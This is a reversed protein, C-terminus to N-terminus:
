THYVVDARTLINNRSVIAKEIELLMVVGELYHRDKCAENVYAEAEAQSSLVESAYELERTETNIIEAIYM